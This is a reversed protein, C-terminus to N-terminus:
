RVYKAITEYMKAPEVPKALHENMGAELSKQVDEAYANATMAIIPVRQADERPLARIAKAAELGDMVPMRIDMLVVDFTDPESEQFAEFGLQGNEKWIVEAGKVQLLRMAIKANLPHDECLLVKLGEPFDSSDTDSHQSMKEEPKEALAFDLYVTFECGENEKSQVEIRGDMLQVLSKVISLGLGTGGLQEELRNEQAFPQFIKSIFKKSIGIGNDRVIFRYHKKKEEQSLVEILFEVKGGAPTFKVANGLLNVFIQKVRQEDLLLEDWEAQARKPEFTISKEDAQQQILEIISHYLRQEDCAKPHLEIKGSEVRNVDLIDNILQLLYEGSERLQPLEKKVEGIDTQHEMLYCLGLIGNMPTRMDHSMRSLFETKAQNAREAARMAKKLQEAQKKHQNYISTIDTLLIALLREDQSLYSFTTQYYKKEGELHIPTFFSFSEKKRLAKKVKEINCKQLFEEKDTDAYYKQVFELISEKSNDSYIPKSTDKSDFLVHTNNVLDVCIFIENRTQLSKETLLIRLKDDNIDETYIYGEVDDTGPNQTMVVTSRCWHVIDEKLQWRHELEVTKQENHFSELLRNRCFSNLFLAKEEQDPVFECAAKAWEDISDVKKAGLSKVRSSGYGDEIQNKTINLRFNAICNQSIRSLLEMQTQYNQEKAKQEQYRHTDDVVYEVHAKIGNWRILKGRLNLHRNKWPMDFERMTFEDESMRKMPCWSCPEDLHLLYEYCKRGAYDYDGGLAEAMCKNAYLMTYNDTDCIYVGTPSDTTINRYLVTEQSIATYVAYYVSCNGEKRIPIASIQVWVNSGNKHKLRYTVGLPLNEKVANMISREAEPLDEEYITNTLLDGKVWEKYEEVTRGSLAPIGESFYTNEITSGIKYIAVGGPVNKVLNDLMLDREHLEQFYKKRRKNGFIIVLIILLLIVIIVAVPILVKSYNEWFTPEYNVIVADEPLNKESIGYQKMVNEDFMPHYPTTRIAIEDSPTGQLIEMTMQGALAGMNEYSIVVGGLFGDGIGLEDTKYVPIKASDSVLRTSEFLTYDYGQSNESMMLFLLITDEGCSGIKEKIQKETLRSCNIEQFALEPFDNRSDYFQEISGKCSESDDAIAVLKTANPSITQALAITEEMPFSEVVGTILPDEAVSQAKEESNIGEFVMPIGDFLKTQYELAFDLAADDGLVIVDYNTGSELEGQIQNYINTKVEEYSHTKTDMFFYDTKAFDDIENAFGELQKPVSDWDYDYSSLFLVRPHNIVQGEVASCTSGLGFAVVIILLFATISGWKRRNGM